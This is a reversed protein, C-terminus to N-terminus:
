EGPLIGNADPDDKKVGFDVLFDIIDQHGYEHAWFLPGRGDAARVHVIQPNTKAWDKIQALKNGNVLEWMQTTIDTDRWEQKEKGLRRAEKRATTMTYVPTPPADDEDEDEEEAARTADEEEEDEEEERRRQREAKKREKKEKAKKAAQRRKWEEPDVSGGGGAMHEMYQKTYEENAGGRNFDELQAFDKKKALVDQLAPPYQGPCYWGGADCLKNAPDAVWKKSKKSVKLVKYIRVKNYKSTFVEKFRDRDVSVGPKQGHGHLKYLLSEAMMPTPTGQRDYFGFQRCTPDNPCIDNYVSNGIRAMHPSKALDDGGGGTWILVYDALHRVLRHADKEPSTLCRGLLAIHEHNWTNGDAITTRNAIGALQYGYDWWSMVRADTPTTKKLWWYAERYDDLIIEQGNNLRAKFM